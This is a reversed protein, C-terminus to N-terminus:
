GSHTLCSTPKERQAQWEMDWSANQDAPVRLPAAAAMDKVVLEYEVIRVDAMCQPEAESEAIVAM